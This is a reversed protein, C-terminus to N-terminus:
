SAPAILKHVDPYKLIPCSCERIIEAIVNRTGASKLDLKEVTMPMFVHKEIYQFDLVMGKEGWGAQDFGAHHKLLLTGFNTEVKSFTVGWMVQTSNAKQQKSVTDINSIYGMLDNGLFAVRVDSGSNGTFINKTWTTFDSENVTRDTGGSGYTLTETIDRAIGGCTYREVNGSDTLHATRSRYGWIYSYEIGLRMDYINQAAYEKFGWDVEKAHMAQFTGEEVQAMFIQAYNYDKEPIIAYPEAQADLENMAKGMRVIVTDEAITPLVLSGANAGAGTDGNLPQITITNASADKAIILCALDDTDQAGNIGRFLCTDDVSWMGVNDVVLAYSKVGDGQKTYTTAVTDSWERSDVSYFDTKFSKINVVNGKTATDRMITDFPTRSPRMEAVKKSVYSTDLDAAAGRVVEHTVPDGEKATGAALVAMVVGTVGLLLYHAILGVAFALAIGVIPALYRFVNNKKM